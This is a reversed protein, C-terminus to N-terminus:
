SEIHSVAAQTTHHQTILLARWARLLSLMFLAVLLACFLNLSHVTGNTALIWVSTAAFVVYVCVTVFIYWSDVPLFVNVAYRHKRRLLSWTGAISLIISAGTMLPMGSPVLALLSIVFIGGLAIFATETLSFQRIRSGKELNADISLAIFLLGVLAASADSTAAFFATYPELMSLLIVWSGSRSSGRVPRASATISMRVQWM